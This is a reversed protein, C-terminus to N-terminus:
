KEQIRNEDNRRNLESALIRIFHGSHLCEKLERFYLMKLIKMPILQPELELTIM